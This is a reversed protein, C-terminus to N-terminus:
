IRTSSRDAETISLGASEFQSLHRPQQSFTWAYPRLGCASAYKIAWFGQLLTVNHPRIALIAAGEFIIGRPLPLAGNSPMRAMPEGFQHEVTCDILNIPPEGLFQAVYRNRPRRYVEAPAGIQEITGDRLSNPPSPVSVSSLLSSKFLLYCLYCLNPYLIHVPWTESRPQSNPPSPVNVSSLL